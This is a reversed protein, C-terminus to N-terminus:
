EHPGPAPAGGQRRLTTDMEDFAPYVANKLQLGLFAALMGGVHHLKRGLDRGAPSRYFKIMADVEPQSFTRKYFLILGPELAEWRPPRVEAELRAIEARQQQEETSVPPGQSAAQQGLKRVFREIERDLDEVVQRHGNVLLLQRISDDSPV